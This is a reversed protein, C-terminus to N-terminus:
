STSLKVISDSDEKGAMSEEACQKLWADIIRQDLPDVNKDEVSAPLTLLGQLSVSGDVPPEISEWVQNLSGMGRAEGTHYRGKVSGDFRSAALQISSPKDPLVLGYPDKTRQNESIAKM